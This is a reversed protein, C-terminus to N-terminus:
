FCHLVDCTVTMSPLWYVCVLMLDDRLAEDVEPIPSPINLMETSGAVERGGETESGVETCPPFLM